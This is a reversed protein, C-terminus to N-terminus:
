WGHAQVKHHKIFQVYSIANQLSTSYLMVGHVLSTALCLSQICIKTFVSTILPMCHLFYHLHISIAKLSSYLVLLIENPLVNRCGSICILLVASSVDIVGVWLTWMDTNLHLYSHLPLSNIPHRTSNNWLIRPYQVNM